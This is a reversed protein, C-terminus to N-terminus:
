TTTYQGGSATSGATGGPLTSVSQNLLVSGHRVDYRKGTSTGTVTSLYDTPIEAFSMQTLEIFATSFAPTGSSTFTDFELTARSQGELTLFARMSATIAMDGSLYVKASNEGRIASGVISGFVVGGITAEGLGFAGNVYVGNEAAILKVNFLNCNAGMYVANGAANNIVVNSPTATNGTISVYRNPKGFPFSVYENYTGDGVQINVSGFEVSQALAIAKGITLFAGGATNALGTNGDSGDKRVYYDRYGVSYDIAEGAYKFPNAPLTIFVHKSGAAFSVLADANSSEFVGLRTLTNAASYIGVGTEWDGSPAGTGDVALICYYCRDNVACRSAFTKHGLVSGALTFAGTGTSTSTEKVRDAVVFAM